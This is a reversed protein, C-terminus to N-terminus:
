QIFSDVIKANLHEGVNNKQLRSSAKAVLDDHLGSSSLQINECVEVSLTPPNAVDHSVVTVDRSDLTCGHSKQSLLLKEMMLLMETKVVSLIACVSTVPQLLGILPVCTEPDHFEVVQFYCFLFILYM